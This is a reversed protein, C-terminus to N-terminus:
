VRITLLVTNCKPIFFIAQFQLAMKVELLLLLPAVVKTSFVFNSIIFISVVFTSFDFTSVVYTSITSFIVKTFLCCSHQGYSIFSMPVLMMKHQCYYFFNHQIKNLLDFSVFNIKLCPLSKWSVALNLNKKCVFEVKKIMVPWILKLHCSIELNKGEGGLGQYM